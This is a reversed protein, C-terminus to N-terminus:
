VGGTGWGVWAMPGTTSDTRCRHCSLLWVVSDSVVLALFQNLGGRAHTLMCHGHQSDTAVRQWAGVQGVCREPGTEVFCEFAEDQGPLEVVVGPQRVPEQGAYREQFGYRGLHLEVQEGFGPVSVDAGFRVDGREDVFGDDKGGAFGRCPHCAVVGFFKGFHQFQSRLPQDSADVVSQGFGHFLQGHSEVAFAVEQDERM